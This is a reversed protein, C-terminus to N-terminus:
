EIVVFVGGQSSNGANSVIIERSGAPVDNPVRINVQYLAPYGPALGAWEVQAPIGGISATVPNTTVSLPDVPPVQGAAIAPSVAGLGCVYVAIVSDRPAPDSSSNLTGDQNIAAAQTASSSENRFMGPATSRVEVTVQDSTRGDYTVQINAQSGSVDYPIQANVLFASAFSIPIDVGNVSVRVGGLTTPWNGAEATVGSEPGLGVGVISVLEGPAIGGSQLSAGNLVTDSRFYPQLQRNGTITLSYSVLWGWRDDSGNNEVALSWLGISSDAQNFNALPEIPRFPGRGAEAPCFDSYASEAADDFTTDVNDLDGCNRELLKTRTGDPSYLFLNLDGVEPYSIQVRVTVKTMALARPVLIWAISVINYDDPYIRLAYGNYSYTVTEEQALVPLCGIMLAVLLCKKMASRM